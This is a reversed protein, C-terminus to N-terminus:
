NGFRSRFWIVLHSELGRGFIVVVCITALIVLAIVIKILYSVPLSLIGLILGVIGEAAVLVVLFDPLAEFFLIRSWRLAGASM